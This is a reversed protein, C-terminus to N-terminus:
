RISLFFGIIGGFLAGMFPNSTLPCTGTSCKGFHGMVAGLGMGILTGIIIRVM